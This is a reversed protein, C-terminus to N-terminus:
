ICCNLLDFLRWCCCCLMFGGVVAACGIGGGSCCRGGGGGLGREGLFCGFGRHRDRWYGMGGFWDGWCYGCRRISGFPSSEIGISWSIVACVRFWVVRFGFGVCAPRLFIFLFIFPFCLCFFTPLGVLNSAHLKKVRGLNFKIPRLIM